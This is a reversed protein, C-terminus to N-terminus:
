RRSRPAARVGARDRARRPRDHGQGRAGAPGDADDAGAGVGPLREGREVALQLARAERRSVRGNIRRGSNREWSRVRLTTHRGFQGDVELPLGWATLLQQLTRVDAGRMPRELPRSGFSRKASAESIPVAVCMATM